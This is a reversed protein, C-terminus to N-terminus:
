PMESDVLVTWATPFGMLVEPWEPNLEGGTRLAEQIFERCWILSSGIKAGSPRMGTLEKNKWTGVNASLKASFQGNSAQPTPLYSSGIGLTLPVLPPRQFVRGSRMSGARPWARLSMEWEPLLSGQCTKWSCSDRDLSAFLENTSLGSGVTMMRDKANDRKVSQNVHSDEM